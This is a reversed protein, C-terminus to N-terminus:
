LSFFKRRDENNKKTEELGRMEAIYLLNIFTIDIM